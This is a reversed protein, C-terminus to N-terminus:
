FRCGISFMFNRGCAPYYYAGGYDTWGAFDCYNRDFINNVSLTARWRKAWSPEWRLSVDFLSFSCLRKHDNDFDSSLYQKSVYKYGFMAELGAGLEVGAEARIRHTPVLPVTNGDYQGDTFASDSFGYFVSASAVKERKWQVGADGGLRRTRGPSNCNFGGWAGGGFDRAYPNYFIEDDILMAYADVFVKWESLFRFEVGADASWGTEPELLKGDQTYNMEDCFPMRHFRAAKAYTKLNDYPRVVVGLEFDAETFTDNSENIGRYDSWRNAIAEFRGGALLTVYESICLSDQAFAAARLREFRYEPNNFGSNDEVEYQDFRIDVGATFRNDKSWLPKENVYRPSFFIGYLDYENAYHYDGWNATRHQFSFRGDLYLWQDQALKAKSDIGAAANWIRGWDDSYAATKRGSRWAAHSLAGPMEYFSNGYNAVVGAYSGNEFNKRLSANAKHIQWASRDRYGDSIDFAYGAAYQVADREFVGKTYLSAGFTNQSGAKAEISTERESSRSDTTINIVGAVAGDGYLVPSPGPIIEIRQISRLPIGTLDPVAMDVNNLEVGDLIIKVRGYGKEGFGRMSIESQMPNSNMTRINLNIKKALLEPLDRASSEDIEDATLVQVGSPIESASSEIRSAYVVIEPIGDSAGAAPLLPLLCFSAIIRKM